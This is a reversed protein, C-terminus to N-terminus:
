QTHEIQWKLLQIASNQPCPQFFMDTLIWSLGQPVNQILALYSLWTVLVQQFTCVLALTGMHLECKSSGGFHIHALGFANTRRTELRKFELESFWKTWLVNLIYETDVQGINNTNIGIEWFKLKVHITDKICESWNLIFDTLVAINQLSSGAGM